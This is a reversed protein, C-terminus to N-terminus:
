ELEHLRPRWGSRPTRRLYLIGGRPGGLVRM